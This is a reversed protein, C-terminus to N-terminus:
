SRNMPPLHVGLLPPLRNEEILGAVSAGNASIASADDASTSRAELQLYRQIEALVQELESSVESEDTESELHKEGLEEPLSDSIPLLLERMERDSPRVGAQVLEAVIADITKWADVNATGVDAGVARAHVRLQSRLTEIRRDNSWRKRIDGLRRAVAPNASPEAADARRMFRQIPFGEVDENTFHRLWGFATRQEPLEGADPGSREQEVRVANQAEAFLRLTEHLEQRFVHTDNGRRALIEGTMEIATALNIFGLARTQASTTPQAESAEPANPWLHRAHKGLQVACEALQRLSVPPETTLSAAAPSGPVPNRIQAPDTQGLTLAATAPVITSRVPTAASEPMLLSVITAFQEPTCTVRQLTIARVVSGGFNTQVRASLEDYAANSLVAAVQQHGRAADDIRQAFEHLILRLLCEFEQCDRRDQDSVAKPPGSLGASLAALRPRLTACETAQAAIHRMQDVAALLHQREERVRRDREHIQRILAELSKEWDHLSCQESPPSWGDLGQFTGKHISNLLEHRQDLLERYPHLFEEPVVAGHHVFADRWRDDILASAKLAFHAWQGRFQQLTHLLEKVQPETLGATGSSSSVAPELRSNSAASKDSARTTSADSARRDKAAPHVSPGNIRSIQQFKSM